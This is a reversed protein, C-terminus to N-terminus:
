NFIIKAEPPCSGDNKTLYYKKVSDKGIERVLKDLSNKIGRLSKCGLQIEIRAPVADIWLTIPAVETVCGSTWYHKYGYKKFFNSEAIQHSIEQLRKKEMIM